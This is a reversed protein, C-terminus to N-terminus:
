SDDDGGPIPPWRPWSTLNIKMSRCYGSVLTKRLLQCLEHMNKKASCHWFYLLIINAMIQACLIGVFPAALLPHILDNPDGTVAGKGVVVQWLAYMVSQTATCRGSRSGEQWSHLKKDERTSLCVHFGCVKCCHAHQNFPGFQTPWATSQQHPYVMCDIAPSAATPSLSRHWLARGTRALRNADGSTRSHTHLGSGLAEGFGM